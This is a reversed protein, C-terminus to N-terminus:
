YFIQIFDRAANKIRHTYDEYFVDSLNREPYKLLIMALEEPNHPDFYVGDVGLQEQNVPINSAIVPVQLSIADEIV